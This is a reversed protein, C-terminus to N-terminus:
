MGGGVKAFLGMSSSPYYRTILFAQSIGGGKAPDELNSAELLWGSLEVGVLFHPNISYGGEFGLFFNTEDEETGEFSLQVFGVGLNVGGWFGSREYREESKEEALAGSSILSFGLISFFIFSILNVIRFDM